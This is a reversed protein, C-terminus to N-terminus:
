RNTLFDGWTQLKILLPAREFAALDKRTEVLKKVCSHLLNQFGNELCAAIPTSTGRLKTNERANCCSICGDETRTM